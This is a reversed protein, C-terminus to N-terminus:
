LILGLYSFRHLLFLGAITSIGVFIVIMVLIIVVYYGILKDEPTEKILKIGLYLLYLSYLGFIGVFWLGPIWTVLSVVWVATPSFAAIKLSGNLDKRAGFSPALADIILATIYIGALTLIYELVSYGFTNVIPFRMREGGFDIGIFSREIFQSIVPILAMIIVYQSYIQATSLSETKINEWEKAPTLLINKAREVANM